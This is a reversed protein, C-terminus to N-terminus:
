LVGGAEDHFVEPWYRYDDADKAPLCAVPDVSALVAVMTDALQHYFDQTFDHEKEMNQQRNYMWVTFALTSIDANVPTTTGAGYEHYSLLGTRGDIVVEFDHVLSGLSILRDGDAPTERSADGDERADAEALTLLLYEDRWLGFMLEEKPLGIDTLFRRTPEHELAAPLESPDIRVVGDAGFEEDLLGDPLDLRLGQGPGAVLAMPRILAAIRWFAPIAHDWEAPTGASGWGDHGWDEDTFVSMLLASAEAVVNAGTREALGAFRGRLAAFEDVSELFRALADLSPALPFLEANHPSKEYLWMSFLRGTGGDLVVEEADGNEVILHGVVLLDAIDADLNAPDAEKDVLYQRVTVVRSEALPAFRMLSHTAPLGAGTLRHRTAEHTISPHLAHTPVTITTATM